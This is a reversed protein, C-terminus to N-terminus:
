AGSDLSRLKELRLNVVGLPTTISIFDAAADEPRLILPVDYHLGAPGASTGQIVTGGAPVTVRVSGTLVGDDDQDYIGDFRVGMPDAGTLIGNQFVLMAFGQGDVGTMYASYIGDWNIAAM